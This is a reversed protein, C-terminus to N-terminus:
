GVLQGYRNVVVMEVYQSGQGKGAGFAVRYGGLDVQMAALAERVTERTAAGARGARRAAEVAVRGAIYGELTTLGLRAPEKLAALDARCQNVVALGLASPRPVVISMVVSRQTAAMEDILEQGAFSSAFYMGGYGLASMREIMRVVPKSNTTFLVADLKADVLQRAATDFAPANRDIGLALAPTVKAEELAETMSALNAKSTDSLYVYGVRRMGFTKVYQVTRRYEADYGARVHMAMATGARRIGMNGSATGLLAVRAKEIAPLAAEAGAGSTLGVLGAVGDALLREVNAVCRDRVGGDDLTSLELRPARPDARNAAEFAAAIGSRVDQGYAAQAGSLSASQGFRITGAGGPAAGSRMPWGLACASAATAAALLRRRRVREASSAAM